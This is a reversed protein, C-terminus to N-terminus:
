KEEKDDSGTVTRVAGGAIDTSVDVATAAVSIGAGAVSGAAGAVACGGLGLALIAVAVLKATM